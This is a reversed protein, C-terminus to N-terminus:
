KKIPHAQVPATSGLGFLPGVCNLRSMVHRGTDLSQLDDLFLSM